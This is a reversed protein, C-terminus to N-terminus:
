GVSYFLKEISSQIPVPYAERRQRSLPFLERSLDHGFTHM